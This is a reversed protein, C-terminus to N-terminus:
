ERCRASASWRTFSQAGGHKAAKCTFKQSKGLVSFYILGASEIDM